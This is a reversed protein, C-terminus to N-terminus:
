FGKRYKIGNRDIFVVENQYIEHVKLLFDLNVYSNPYYVKGNLVIRSDTGAARVGTVGLSEIFAIVAPDGGAVPEEATETMAPQPAPASLTPEVSSVSAAPAPQDAARAETAEAAQAARDVANPESVESAEVAIEDDWGSGDMDSPALFMMGLFAVACSVMSYLFPKGTEDWHTIVFVFAAFPIFMYALGWLVSTQFAKVLLILSFIAAGLLGIGCIVIGLITM